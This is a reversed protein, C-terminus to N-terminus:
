KTKRFTQMFVSFRPVATWKKKFTELGKNNCAWGIDLWRNGQAKAYQVERHLLFDALSPYDLYFGLPVSMTDSLFDVVDFGILADDCFVNFLLASSCNKLYDGLRLYLQYDWPAYSAKTMHLAVIRSHAVTFDRGVIFTYGRKEANRVRYRLQKYRGGNLNEDFRRLDIQYDKDEYAMDSKFANVETPLPLPSTTVVKEPHFFETLNKFCKAADSCTNDRSPDLEFLTLWLLRSSHDHYLLYKDEYLYPEGYATSYLAALHEDFYGRKQCNAVQSPILPKLDM